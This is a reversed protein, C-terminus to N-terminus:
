YMSFHLLSIFIFLVWTGDVLHEGVILEDKMM